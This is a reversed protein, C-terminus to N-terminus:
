PILKRDSSIVKFLYSYTDSDHSCKLNVGSTILKTENPKEEKIAWICGQIRRATTKRTL